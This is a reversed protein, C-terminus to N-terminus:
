TRLSGTTCRTRAADFHLNWNDTIGRVAVCVGSKISSKYYTSMQVWQDNNVYGEETDSGGGHLCIYLPYLGYEDPEGVVSLLYRMTYTGDTISRVEEETDALEEGDYYTIVTKEPTVEAIREPDQAAAQLADECAQFVMEGVTDQDYLQAQAPMSLLLAASLALAPFRKLKM